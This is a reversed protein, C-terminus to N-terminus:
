DKLFSICILHIPELTLIVVESARLDNKIQLTMTGQKDNWECEKQIHLHLGDTFSEFFELPLLKPIGRLNM